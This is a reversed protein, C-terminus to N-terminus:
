AKISTQQKEKVRIKSPKKALNAAQQDKSKTGSGQFMQHISESVIRTESDSRILYTEGCLKTHGQPKLCIKTSVESQQLIQM